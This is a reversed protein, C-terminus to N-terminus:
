PTILINVDRLLAEKEKGELKPMPWAIFDKLRDAESLEPIPATSDDGYTPLTDVRIGQRTMKVRTARLRLTEILINLMHKNKLSVIKSKQGSLRYLANLATMPKPMCGPAFETVIGKLAQTCSGMGFKKMKLNRIDEISYPTGDRDFYYKKDGVRTGTGIIIAVKFNCDLDQYHFMDFGERTAALCGGVCAKEITKVVEPTIQDLREFAPAHNVSHGVLCLVNPFQQHFQASLLSSDAQRFPIVSQTGIMKVNEDGFGRQRADTLLAITEPDIGMMHTAVRDTEVSNNGSIIVHSRVPDVPAPTNGEGGIIGDIIVLNPKFLYLLDVLKLSIHYNHNKQRLNYPLIGMANKFGLTVGTYLNTKLKPVSIYFAEGRVVESFIQPVHVEKMVRAKPLIYRDLAQEELAILQTHYRRSIRDFGTIKFSSRTPMGRGSSEVIVINRTYQYIFSVVADFVRPDTTEPYNDARYGFRHYPVVLNPKLIVKRNEIESVFGTETNLKSLNEYVTENIARIDPRAAYAPTGYSAPLAVYDTLYDLPPAQSIVVISNKNM